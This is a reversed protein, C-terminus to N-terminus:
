LWAPAFISLNLNGPNLKKVKISEDFKLDATVTMASKIVM